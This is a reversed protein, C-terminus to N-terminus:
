TLCLLAKVTAGSFVTKVTQYVCFKQQFGHRETWGALYITIYKVPYINEPEFMLCILGKGTGVWINGQSDELLSRVDNDILGEKETFHTFTEGNFLSLGGFTGFWLNGHSDELISKVNNNILGEKETFHTVTEGNYQSVGGGGTAFWLNGYSDELISIVDNNILGERETFHSFTEGFYM